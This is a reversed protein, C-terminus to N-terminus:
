IKRKKRAYTVGFATLEYDADMKNLQVLIDALEAKQQDELPPLPAANELMEMTDSDYRM